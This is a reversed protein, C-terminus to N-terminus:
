KSAPITQLMMKAGPHGAAAAKEWWKKTENLDKTTGDGLMYMSGLHYQADAHGQEAARKYWSFSEPYKTLNFYLEGLAYQAEAVNQNASQLWYKEATEINKSIGDSGFYYYKGVVLQARSNGKNASKEFWSFALQPDPKTGWGKLFIYGLWLQADTEGTEALPSFIQKAKEFDKARLAKVGEEVTAAEIALSFTLSFILGAIVSTIHKM